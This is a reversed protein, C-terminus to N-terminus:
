HSKQEQKDCLVKQFRPMKNSIAIQMDAQANLRNRSKTKISLLPSFGSECLYTTVFSILTSLAKEVLKPFMNM